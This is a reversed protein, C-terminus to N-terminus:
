EILDDARAFLTRPVNLSLAKATKLNIVLEIRTPQEVPLDAPSAGKLIKSIFTTATATMEAQSPGYSLLGGADVAERFSYMSPVGHRRALEAIRKANIMTVAEDLVLVGDPKTVAFGAFIREIDDPERAEFGDASIGLLNAAARTQDFASPESPNEPNYIVALRKLRPLMEQFMEVRKAALETTLGTVGTTNSGPRALSAVLESAIADDALMVIPISRTAVQAAAIAEDGDAYIVDVPLQVLERALPLLRDRRADALRYEFAATRGDVYGQERMKQAFFIPAPEFAGGVIQQNIGLALYGILPRHQACASLSQCFVAVLCAYIITPVRV